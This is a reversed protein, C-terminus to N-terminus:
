GSAFHLGNPSFNLDLIWSGHGLLTKIQEGQGSTHIKIQTDDSGSLLYKSDPSFAVARVPLAHGGIQTLLKETELDFINVGGTVTGAALLKGDPSQFPNIFILM